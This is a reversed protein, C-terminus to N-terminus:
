RLKFSKLDITRFSIPSGALTISSGAALKELRKPDQLELFLPAYVERCEKRIASSEWDEDRHIDLARYKKGYIQKCITFLDEWAFYEDDKGLYISAILEVKDADAYNSSGFEVGVQYEKNNLLISNGQLQVHVGAIVLEDVIKQLVTNKTWPRGDHKKYKAKFGFM